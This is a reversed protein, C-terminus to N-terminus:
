NLVKLTFFVIMANAIRFLFTIKSINLYQFQQRQSMIIENKLLFLTHIFIHSCLSGKFQFVKVILIDVVYM